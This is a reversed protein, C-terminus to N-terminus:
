PMSIPEPMSIRRPFRTARRATGPCSRSPSAEHAFFHVPRSPGYPTQYVETGLSQLGRAVFPRHAAVRAILAVKVKVPLKPSLRLLKM